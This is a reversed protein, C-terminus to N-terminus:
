IHLFFKDRMSSFPLCIAKSAGKVAKIDAITTIM